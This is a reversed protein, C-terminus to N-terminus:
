RPVDQDHPTVFPHIRLNLATDRSFIVRKESGCEGRFGGRGRGGVRPRCVDIQMKKRKGEM